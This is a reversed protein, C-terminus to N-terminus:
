EKNEKKDWKYWEKLLNDAFDSVVEAEREWPFGVSSGPLDLEKALQNFEMEYNDYEEDSITPEGLIYYKYKNEVLLKDLEKYRAQKDM